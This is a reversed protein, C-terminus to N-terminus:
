ILFSYKGSGLLATRKGLVVEATTNAPIEVSVATHGDAIQWNVCATGYPTEERVCASTLGHGFHPEIRIKRYGPAAEHLGGIYRYMWEGVCGFAYHNYSYTSVTGDVGTAGWSEWMTTGGRLVEYLWGPCDEQFLLTYALDEQGNDCLVDMLFPVSLFGTDLRDGNEHIMECLRQVMKPRIKEPVLGMQLTIVYVGQLDADMSGDEHVYEEMYAERIKRYLDKYYRADEEEQLIEATEAMMLASFGYYAPAVYRMTKYATENMASADPNGLVMSPVLWDGFHFDTSWLYRDRARRDADWTEYGEPHANEARGRIYDLWKKMADYNDRLIRIDGYAHYITLPVRLVADGWGSSTDSGLNRKLFTAYAKLYPVIMPIEGGAMQEARVNAMWSTLFADANRLFCFTPAYAMIDGTWGAKERQPCDTPISISNSVQSWWINSQLQNIRPDSTTFFGTDDMESAFTWVRFQDVDMEGPWGSIKVYRFGHYTFSPRYTQTGERTVYWDTQEKNVNLINNYFNGERDLVESHELIITRGAQATLTIELQGALVQGTDLVIEGKPTRIIREPTFIRLPRVPAAIQATVATKDYNKRLVPTWHSDDFLPMDWGDMELRADYREGVFLDSFIVPGTSSVGNEATVTQVTGDTYEIRADLLLGITNGYQCSDGTTGVRGTWWGDGICIGIINDGHFLLQTVDYTQYFLIKHYASNEPAFERDDPRAGNVTLRYLGHATAYVRARKVPKSCTFPVRIYQAPRFEHFDREEENGSALADGERNIDVTSPTPEQVPEIWSSVFPIGMRGTEFRGSLFAEHGQNDWVTLSVRYPTMPQPVFGEPVVEISQDTVIRGTDCIVADNNEGDMSSVCLRYAEQIVNCAHSHLKWAFRPCACDIGLPSSLHEVTLDSLWLTDLTRM